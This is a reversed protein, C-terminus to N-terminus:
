RAGAPCGQLTNDLFKAYSAGYTGGGAYDQIINIQYLHCYPHDDTTDRVWVYGRKFRSTPLLGYEDKSIQWTNHALGIKHITLKALDGLTGKMMREEIPNHFAFNAPGPVYTPLKKAAAAALADLAPDITNYKSQRLDLANADKLWQERARPSVAFLLYDYTTTSVMYRKTNPDFAEVERQKEAINDGHARVWVSDAYSKEPVTGLACRLHEDRNAAIDEWIAPNKDYSLFTNPRAKLRSKLETELEALRKHAAQVARRMQDPSGGYYSVTRFGSEVGTVKQSGLNHKKGYCGLFDMIDDKYDRRISNFENKDFFPFIANASYWVVQNSNAHATKYAGGSKSIIRVPELTGLFSNGTAAIALDNANLNADYNPPAESNTEVDGAPAQGAPEITREMKPPERRPKKVGPIDPIKIAIQTSAAQLGFAMLILFACALSTIRRM